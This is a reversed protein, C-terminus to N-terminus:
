LLGTPVVLNIFLYSARFCLIFFATFQNVAKKIKSNKKEPSIKKLFTQKERAQSKVSKKKIIHKKNKKVPTLLNSELSIPIVM